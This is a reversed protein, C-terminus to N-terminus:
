ANEERRGIWEAIEGFACAVTSADGGEIWRVGPQNRFWTLQRKAYRRSDRKVRDLCTEFTDAGDIFPFWEKYGVTDLAVSDRGYGAALLSRVEDVLGGRVMADVREDIRRYLLHRDIDVGLFFVDYEGGVRKPRARLETITMGTTEYIELARLVRVSDRPHLEAARVADVAALRAHLAEPGRGRIERELSARIGPEPAIGESLGELFAAIYFGTGGSIIPLRGRALIERVADAARRAWEGASFPEDPEVIDILHHPIRARDEPSPKATGIDLRRYVKRSDASVIEGGFREAADLAIRKKGSATPGGIVLVKPLTLNM